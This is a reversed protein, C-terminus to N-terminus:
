YLIIYRVALLLACFMRNYTINYNLLLQSHVRHLISWCDHMLRQGTERDCDESWHRTSFQIRDVRVGISHPFIQEAVPSRAIVVPVVTDPSTLKNSYLLHVTASHSYSAVLEIRGRRISISM